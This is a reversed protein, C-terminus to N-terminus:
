QINYLEGCLKNGKRKKMVPRHGEQLLLLDGPGETLRRGRGKSGYKSPKKRRDPEKRRFNYTEEKTLIPNKWPLGGGWPRIPSGEGSKDMLDIKKQVQCVAVFNLM